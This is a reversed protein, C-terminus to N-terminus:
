YGHNRMRKMTERYGEPDEKKIFELVDKPSMVVVNFRKKVAAADALLKKCTSVIILKEKPKKPAFVFTHLVTAFGDIENDDDIFRGKWEHNYEDETLLKRRYAENLATKLEKRSARALAECMEQVKTESTEIDMLRLSKAYRQFMDMFESDIEKFHKM